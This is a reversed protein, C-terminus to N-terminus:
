TRLSSMGGDVAIVQGTIWQNQLLMLAIPAIDAVTGIKKLPHRAIAAERQKENQLLKQALPTETLSPAICNIRIDPALEAALSRTLGEVAGKASAISAHFALGTQVAVTSFLVIASGPQQRLAPLAHQILRVAGLLNIEFDARFDNTKLNRFPKLNISGPCYVLGALPGSIEPLAEEKTFDVDFHEFAINQAQGVHRSMSIVQHGKEVLMRAIALGIGSSAGAILYKQSM